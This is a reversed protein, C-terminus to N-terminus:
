VVLCSWSNYAYNFSLFLIIVIFLELKISNLMTVFSHKIYKKIKFMSNLNILTLTTMYLIIVTMFTINTFTPILVLLIILFILIFLCNNKM